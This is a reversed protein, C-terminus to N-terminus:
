KGQHNIIRGTELATRFAEDSDRSVCVWDGDIRGCAAGAAQFKPVRDAAVVYITQSNLIGADVDRDLRECEAAVTPGSVRAFYGSNYTTKMRYAHLMYRFVHNEQYPSCVGRVQMPVLALHRYRGVAATFENFPVERIPAQAWLTDIKLDMAQLVVLLALITAGAAERSVRVIRTAGWIGGALVLYHLAWIFRGSARFPATVATFPEYFAHANIVTRGGLTINWSLSYV